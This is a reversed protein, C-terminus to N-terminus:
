HKERYEYETNKIKMKKDKKNVWAKEQDQTTQEEQKRDAIGGPTYINRLDSMKTTIEETIVVIETEPDVEPLINEEKKVRNKPSRSCLLYSTFFGSVFCEAYQLFIWASAM